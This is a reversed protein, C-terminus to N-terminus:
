SVYNQPRDPNNEEIIIEEKQEPLHVEEENVVEKKVKKELKVYGKRYNNYNIYGDVVCILAALLFVSALLIRMMDVSFNDYRAFVVTGGTILVLSIIFKLPEVKTKLFIVEVLYITGRAYLITGLLFPFVNYLKSIEEKETTATLVILLVGVALDVFMEIANVAVAWKERTTKILPIFRIIVFVILIAGFLYFVISNGFEQSFFMVVSLVLVAAAIIWLYLWKYKKLNEVM